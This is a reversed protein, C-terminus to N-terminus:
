KEEKVKELYGQKILKQLHKNKGNISVQQNPMIVITKGKELVSVPFPKINKVKM